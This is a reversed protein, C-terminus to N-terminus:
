GFLLRAAREARVRTQELDRGRFEIVVRIAGAALYEDVLDDIRDLQEDSTDLRVSRSVPRRALEDLRAGTERLEVPSIDNPHWVDGYAAARRLAPRSTGGVWIPPHPSQWPVPQV